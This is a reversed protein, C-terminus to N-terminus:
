NTARFPLTGVVMQYLMVGLAWVDAGAGSYPVKKAIEPCMFPPTGCYTNLKNYAHASFGFDIIKVIGEDDVLINEPKIDRHCVGRSHCYSIAKIIQKFYFKAKEETFSRFKRLIGSLSQKGGNDMLLFLKKKDKFVHFLEIVNEHHLKKLHKIERKISELRYWEM